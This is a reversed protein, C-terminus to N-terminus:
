EPVPRITVTRRVVAFEMEEEPDEGKLRAIAAEENRL